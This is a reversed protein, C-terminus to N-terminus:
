PVEVFSHHDPATGPTNPDSIWTTGDLVFQYAHRGQPLPLAIRWVGHADPGRLAYRLNIVRGDRNDAWHNFSGALYVITADPAFLEFHVLGNTAYAARASVAPPDPDPTGDVVLYANGDQDRQTAYDPAFWTWASGPIAFKYRYLGPPLPVTKRFVGNADPGSMAFRTDTIQGGRNRAFANFDGALYVQQADPAFCSFVVGEATERPLLEAPQPPQALAATTSWALLAAALFLPSPM